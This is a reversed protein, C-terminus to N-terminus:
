KSLVDLVDIAFYLLPLIYVYISIVTIAVPAIMTTGTSALGGCKLSDASWRSSTIQWCHRRDHVSYWYTIGAKIEMVVPVNGYYKIFLPTYNSYEFLCGKLTLNQCYTLFNWRKKDWEFCVRPLEQIVLDLSQSETVTGVEQIKSSIQFLPNNYYLLYLM